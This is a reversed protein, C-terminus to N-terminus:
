IALGVLAHTALEAVFVGVREHSVGFQTEHQVLQRLIALVAGSNSKPTQTRERKQQLTQEAKQSDRQRERGKSSGMGACSLRSKTTNPKEIKSCHITKPKTRLKNQTTLCLFRVQQLPLSYYFPPVGEFTIRALIKTLSPQPRALLTFSHVLPLPISAVFYYLAVNTNFSSDSNFRARNSPHWPRCLGNAPDSSSADDSAARLESNSRQARQSAVNCWSSSGVRRAAEM